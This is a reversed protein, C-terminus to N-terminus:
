PHSTASSQVRNRETPRNAINPNTNRPWFFDCSACRVDRGIGNPQDIHSIGATPLEGGNKVCLGAKERNEWFQSGSITTSITPFITFLCTQTLVPTLQRRRTGSRGMQNVIEMEFMEVFAYVM